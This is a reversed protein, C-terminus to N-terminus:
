RVAEAMMLLGGCMEQDTGWRLDGPEELEGDILKQNGATNDFHCEVYLKDGPNILVPRAFLYEGHWTFDYDRVDLLCETTGDARLIALSGASGYDHMHMTASFLELPEGGGYLATPEYAFWVMTDPSNAEIALGDGILWQPNGVAVTRAERAVEADLKLEIATRDPDPSRSSTDYHMQLLVATDPPIKRGLGEPLDFGTEGPTWGGISAEPLAGLEGWCDWGPRGDSGELRRLREADGRDIALVAVHHVVSPNGPRVNVGTVHTLQDLPWDIIFCRVEDNGIKAEPYFDETMELTLDVRSIGPTSPELPEGEAGPDGPAAGQDIWALLTATEADDLSRDHLYERCCENPDWPPMRGSTIAVRSAEKNFFVDDYGTLSFPGIGGPRHCGACKADIIPKADAYYTLTRDVAAPEPEPDAACTAFDDPLQSGTEYFCASTALIAIAILRM